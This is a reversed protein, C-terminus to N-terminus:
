QIVQFQLCKLVIKASNTKKNVFFRPTICVSISKNSENKFCELKSFEDFSKAKYSYHKEGEIVFVPCYDIRDISSDEKLFKTGVFAYIENDPEIQFDTDKVYMELLDMMSKYQDIAQTDLDMFIRGHEDSFRINSINWQVFKKRNVEINNITGNDFNKDETLEILCSHRLGAESTLCSHRLSSSTQISKKTIIKYDYTTFSM